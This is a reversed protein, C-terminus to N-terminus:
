IICNSVTYGFRLKILVYFLFSLYVFSWFTGFSIGLFGVVHDIANRTLCSVSIYWWCVSPLDTILFSDSLTDLFILTIFRMQWQSGIQLSVPRVYTPSIAAQKRQSPVNLRRKRAKQLIQAILIAWLAFTFCYLFKFCCWYKNNKYRHSVTDMLKSKGLCIIVFLNINNTVSTINSWNGFSLPKRTIKYVQFNDYLTLYHM